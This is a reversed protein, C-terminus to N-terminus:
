RSDAGNEIEMFRSERQDTSIAKIEVNVLNFEGKQNGRQGSFLTTYNFNDWAPCM